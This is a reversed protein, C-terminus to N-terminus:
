RAGGPFRASVRTGAHPTSSIDVTGGARGAREHMGVLGYHGAPMRGEAADFGRGDDVVTVVVSADDLHASVVVSTAEAHRRVNELAELVIAVAEHHADPTLAVDAGVVACPIRTREQWIRAVEVLSGTLPEDLSAARQLIVLRRADEAATRATEEIELIRAADRDNASELSRRAGSALMAIGYLSKGVSDHLERALRAREEAAARAESEAAAAARLRRQERDAAQASLGVVLFCVYLVPVGVTTMFSLDAAAPHLSLAVTYLSVFMTGLIWAMTRVFLAGLLLATLVTALAVPSGPGLLALVCFAVLSDAVVLSPHRALVPLSPPVALVVFSTLSVLVIAVLTVAPSEGLAVQISAAALALLRLLMSARVITRAYHGLEGQADQSPAMTRAADRVDALVAGAARRGARAGLRVTTM